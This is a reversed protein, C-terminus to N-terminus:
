KKALLYAVRGLYRMEFNYNFEKIFVDFGEQKFMSTPTIAYQATVEAGNPSKRRTFVEKRGNNFKSKMTWAGLIKDKRGSGKLKYAVSFKGGNRKRGTNTTGLQDVAGFEMLPISSSTLSFQLNLNSVTAKKIPAKDKLDGYKIKWREKPNPNKTVFKLSKTKAKGAVDNMAYSTARANIKVFKNLNTIVKDLGQVKLIM